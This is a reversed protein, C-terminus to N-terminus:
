KEPTYKHLAVPLLQNEREIVHTQPWVWVKQAIKGGGGQNTICPGKWETAGAPRSSTATKRDWGLHLM